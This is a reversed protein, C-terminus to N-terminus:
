KSWKGPGMPREALCRELLEKKNIAVDTFAREVQKLRKELELERPSKGTGQRLALSIGELGDQRWKEITTPHVGFRRALQDVGAKGSLLELVASARDEVSRRGPRGRREDASVEAESREAGTEASVVGKVEGRGRKAV